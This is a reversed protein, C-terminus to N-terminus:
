RDITDRERCLLRAAGLTMSSRITAACEDISATPWMERLYQPVAHTPLALWVWSRRGSSM